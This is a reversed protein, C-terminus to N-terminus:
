RKIGLGLIAMHLVGIEHATNGVSGYGYVEIEGNAGSVVVIAHEAALVEGREMLDALLRLSQPVNKLNPTELKVVNMGMGRFDDYQSSAEM